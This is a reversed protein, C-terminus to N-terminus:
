AFLNFVAVAAILVFGATMIPDFFSKNESVSKGILDSAVWRHHLNDQLIDWVQKQEKNM